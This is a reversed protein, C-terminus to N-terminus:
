RRLISFSKIFVTLCFIVLQKLLNHKDKRLVDKVRGFSVRDTNAKKHLQHEESATGIPFRGRIENIRVSMISQVAFRNEIILRRVM